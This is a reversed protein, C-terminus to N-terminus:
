RKDSSSDYHKKMEENFPLSMIEDLVKKVQESSRTRPDRELMEELVHRDGTLFAELAMEMRVMRPYLYFRTIRRTLPPDIK